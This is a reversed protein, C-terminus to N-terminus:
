GKPSHPVISSVGLDQRGLTGLKGSTAFCNPDLRLRTQYATKRATEWDSEDEWIEEHPPM